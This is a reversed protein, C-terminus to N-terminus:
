LRREKCKGKSSGYHALRSGPHKALKEAPEACYVMSNRRLSSMSDKDVMGINLVRVYNEVTYIKSYNLGSRPDLHREPASQKNRVKILDKSLQERVIKGDYTTYSYEDPCERSTYIIAHQQVERLNPKLTAQGSYTQIPSCPTNLVRERLAPTPSKGASQIGMDKKSLLLVDSEVLYKRISSYQVSMLDM